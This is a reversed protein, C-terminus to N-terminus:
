VYWVGLLKRIARAERQGAVTELMEFRVAALHLASRIQAMTPAPARNSRFVTPNNM